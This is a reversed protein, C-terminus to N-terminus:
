GLVVNSTQLWEGQCSPQLAPSLPGNQGQSATVDVQVPINPLPMTCSVDSGSHTQPEDECSAELVYSCKETHFIQM